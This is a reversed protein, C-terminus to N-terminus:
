SIVSRISKTLFVDQSWKATHSVNTSLLDTHAAQETQVEEGLVTLSNLELGTQDLRGNYMFSTNTKDTRLNM